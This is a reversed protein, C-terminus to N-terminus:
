CLENILNMDNHCVDTYFYYFSCVEDFFYSAEKSDFSDIMQIAESTKGDILLNRADQVKILNINNEEYTINTDIENSQMNQNIIEEITANPNQQQYEVMHQIQESNCNYKHGNLIFNIGAGTGNYFGATFGGYLFSLFAEKGLNTIDITEDFIVARLGADILEEGGEQIGENIMNRLIELISGMKSIEVNKSLGPLGGIFYQSTSSIIATLVSYAIAQDLEAGDKLSSDLTNGFISATNTVGTVLAIAGQSFGMAYLGYSMAMVPAMQGISSGLTYGANLLGSNQLAMAFFMRKYDGVDYNGLDEYDFGNFFNSVGDVLGYGGSLLFTGFDEDLELNGNEIDEQLTNIDLIGDKMYPELRSLVQNMAKAQILSSKLMEIYQKASESGENQFTLLLALKQERTMLKNLDSYNLGSGLERFSSNSLDNIIETIYSNLKEYSMNEYEFSIDSIIQTTIFDSMYPAFNNYQQYLNSLNNYDSIMKNYDDSTKDIIYLGNEKNLNDYYEKLKKYDVHYRTEGDELYIIQIPSNPDEVSFDFYAGNLIYSTWQQITTKEYKGIETNLVFIEEEYGGNAIIANSYEDLSTVFNYKSSLTTNTNNCANEYNALLENSINQFEQYTDTFNSKLQNNTNSEYKEISQNITTGPTYGYQHDIDWSDYHMNDVTDEMNLTEININNDQSYNNYSSTNTGQLSPNNTTINRGINSFDPLHIKEIEM